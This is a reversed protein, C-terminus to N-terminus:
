VMEGTIQIVVLIASLIEHIHDFTSLKEHYKEVFERSFKGVFWRKNWVRSIELPTSADRTNDAFNLAGLRTETENPLLITFSAHGRAAQKYVLFFKLM